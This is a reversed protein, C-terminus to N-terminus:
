FGNANQKGDLSFGVRRPKSANGFKDTAVVEFEYLAGPKVKGGAWDGLYVIKTAGAKANTRLKQVDEDRRVCQGSVDRRPNGPKAKLCGVKNVRILLSAPEDLSVLLRTGFKVALRVEKWVYSPDDKKVAVQNLKGGPAFVNRSLGVKLKPPTTDAPPPAPPGAPQKPPAPPGPAYIATGARYYLPTSGDNFIHDIGVVARGDAAVVLDTVYADGGSIQDAVSPFSEGPPRVSAEPVKFGGDFRTWAAYATGDPGIAAQVAPAQAFLSDEINENEDSLEIPASMTAGSGVTARAQDCCEGALAEPDQVFHSWTVLVMGNPFEDTKPGVALDLESPVSLTAVTVPEGNGRKVKLVNGQLWALVPEGNPAVAVQMRSSPEEIFTGNDWTSGEYTFLHLRTKGLDQKHAALFRRSADPAIAVDAENNSSSPSTEFTKGVGAAFSGGQILKVKDYEDGGIRWALLGEGNPLMNMTLYDATGDGPDTLETVGSWTGSTRTAGEMIDKSPAGGNNREWAVVANGNALVGIRPNGSGATSNIPQPKAYEGAGFPLVASSITLVGFVSTNINPDNRWVATVNGATDVGVQTQTAEVKEPSAFKFPLWGEAAANAPLCLAAVLAFGVALSRIRLRAGL